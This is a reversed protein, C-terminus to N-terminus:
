TPVEGEHRVWAVQYEARGRVIRKGLGEEARQPDHRGGARPIGGHGQPSRGGGPLGTDENAVGGQTRNADAGLTPRHM